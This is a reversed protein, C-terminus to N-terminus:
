TKWWICVMHDRHSNCLWRVLGTLRFAPKVTPQSHLIGPIFACSFRSHRVKAGEMKLKRKIAPTHHISNSWRCPPVFPKSFLVNTSIASFIIHYHIDIVCDSSVQTQRMRERYSKHSKHMYSCANMQVLGTTLFVSILLWTFKGNALFLLTYNVTFRKWIWFRSM